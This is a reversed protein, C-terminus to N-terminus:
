VQKGYEEPLGKQIAQRTHETHRAGQTSIAVAHLGAKALQGLSDFVPVGPHDAEVETRREPSRTVVGALECGAASAILPAHFYKGGFGYGLLGIRVPKTM